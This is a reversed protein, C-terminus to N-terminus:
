YPQDEVPRREREPEVAFGGRNRQKDDQPHARRVSFNQERDLVHAALAGLSPATHKVIECARNAVGSNRM